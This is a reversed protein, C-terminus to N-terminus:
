TVGLASWISGGAVVIGVALLGVNWTPDSSPVVNLSWRRPYPWLFPVGLPTIVDALLHALVTGFGLLFGATAPPLTAPAAVSPLPVVVSAAAAVLGGVFVAFALSHTVTRHTLGPVLLDLDPLTALPVMAAAVLLALAHYGGAVLAHGIPGFLLLAVGLHGTRHM